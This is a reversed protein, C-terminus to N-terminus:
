MRPLSQPKGGVPGFGEIGRGHFFYGGPLPTLQNEFVGREGLGRGFEVPVAGALYPDVTGRNRRQADAAHELDAVRRTERLGHRGRIVQSDDIEAVRDYEGVLWRHAPLNKRNVSGM